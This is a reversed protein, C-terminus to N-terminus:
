RGWRVTLPTGIDANLAEAANGGPLAVELYGASGILAILGQGEAYTRKLGTIKRGAVEVTLDGGPLDDGRVDTILNGFRGIHLVRGTLSGDPLTAARFPPLVTISVVPQGLETIPVGLSLHAAVPAFVDRGHFTPSVPRRFYRESTLAVARFGPPLVVAAAPPAAQARLEDPLAASLVGNDPGVFTGAPTQIALARRATGVGPDVVALHVSGPPFYPWASTLLFAAQEARQPRVEHSIDVVVADPNISLMVGKMVGVYPGSLGFDTTLTIVPRLPM